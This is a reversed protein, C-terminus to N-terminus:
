LIVEGIITPNLEGYSLAIAVVSGAQVQIKSKVEPIEPYDDSVNGDQDIVKLAYERWKGTLRANFTGGTDINTIQISDYEFTDELETAQTIIAYLIAPLKLYPYDQALMKKFVTKSFEELM